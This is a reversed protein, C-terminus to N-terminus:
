RAQKVGNVVVAVGGRRPDGTGEFHRHPRDVAAAHVGGFFLNRGQWHQQNPYHAKLRVMEGKRFGSELNLLENEFHVRPARVAARLDMGYDIVNVLVQLIATRIRNSGGSGLAIRRGRGDVVLTPAMMSAIRRNTPWRHFGHPNLDEEGLMNNLMIGTGPVVYGCGEGNSVTMAAADGKADIVSMHTTGRACEAGPALAAAYRRLTRAGLLQRALATDIGRGQKIEGRARNAEAMAGALRYM